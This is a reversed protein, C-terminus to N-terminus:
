SQHLGCESKSIGAWRGARPDSNEAVPQTCPACGISPYGKDHLPNYPLKNLDIYTMIDEWTWHILPCIKIKQFKDDKNIYHINSRTPSQERRLGSIWAKVGKLGEKLPVVKRMYCCLNPNDNWLEEGHWKSQEKLSIPNVKTFQLSPYRDKVKEILEYTEPFHLGTDIFIIKAKRNVKAILDILVIGEAGFSCAYVIEDGYERFAWKLIDIYDSQTDMIAATEKENWNEYTLVDNM